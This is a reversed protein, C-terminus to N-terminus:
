GLRARYEKELERREKLAMQRVQELCAERDIEPEKCVKEVLEVGMGMTILGSRKRALVMFDHNPLRLLEILNETIAKASLERLTIDQNPKM